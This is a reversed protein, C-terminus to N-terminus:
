RHCSDCLRDLRVETIVGYEGEMCASVEPILVTRTMPCEDM